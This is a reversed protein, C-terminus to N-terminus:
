PTARSRSFDSLHSSLWKPFGELDALIVNAGAAVLAAENQPGTLVAVSIAGAVRAAQVDGSHDGVYVGAQQEILTAGKAAGFLGGVVLDPAVDGRDLGVASLVDRVGAEAKASVVLVRGGAAHVARISEVAGPLLRTLPVGIEAYRARYALIVQDPDTRPALATVTPELPLGVWPWVEDRGFRVGEGGPCVAVAASLTAAIGDASDVLTMDLDFGVVLPANLVLDSYVSLFTPPGCPGGV